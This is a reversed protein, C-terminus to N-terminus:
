RVLWLTRHAYALWMKPCYFPTAIRVIYKGIIRWPHKSASVDARFSGCIMEEAKVVLWGPFM